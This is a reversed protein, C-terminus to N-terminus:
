LSVGFLGALKELQAKEEETAEPSNYQESIEDKIYSVDGGLKEVTDKLASNEATANNAQDVMTMIANSSSIKDVIDKAEAKKEEETEGLTLKNDNNKADGVIDVIKQGADLDKEITGATTNDIFTELMDTLIEAQDKNEDGVLSGVVDSSILDKITDKIGSENDSVITKLTEKLGDITINDQNKSISNAVKAAEGISAFVSAYKYNQNNWNSNIYSELKAKITNNDDNNSSFSLNDSKVFGTIFTKLPKSLMTSERSLDIVEGITGIEDIMSETGAGSINKYLSMIKNTLSQLTEAEHSWVINKKEDNTLINSEFSANKDVIDKYLLELVDNMIVPLNDKFDNSASLAIIAEKILLNNQAFYDSINVDSKGFFEILDNNNAVKMADLVVTINNSLRDFDDTKFVQLADIVLNLYDDSVPVAIGMFKEGNTWREVFKPVLECLYSKVIESGKAVEFIEKIGDISDNSKLNFDNEIFNKKYTNYVKIFSYIEDTFNITMSNTEITTLYNFSSEGLKSIGFANLVTGVASHNYEERIKAYKEVYTEITGINEDDTYYLKSCLFANGSAPEQVSVASATENSEELFKDCVNMAGFVPIMIAFALILSSVFGIGAGICRNGIKKKQLTGKKKKRFHICGFVIWYIILSILLIGIFLILFAGINVVIKMLGMALDNTTSNASFIDDTVSKNSVFEEVIKKFDISYGFISLTTGNSNSIVASSIAPSVFFSVLFAVITIILRTLSKVWGRLLGIIIGFLLIASFTLSIITSISM